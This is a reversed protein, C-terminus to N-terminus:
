CKCYLRPARQKLTPLVRSANEVSVNCGDSLLTTKDAELIKSASLVFSVLGVLYAEEAPSCAPDAFRRSAQTGMAFLAITLYPM